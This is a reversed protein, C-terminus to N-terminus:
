NRGWMASAIINQQKKNQTAHIIKQKVLLTEKLKDSIRQEAEDMSVLRSAFKALQSERITQEFISDFIQIEFFALVETLSPEFLYSKNPTLKQKKIDEVSNIDFVDPYQNVVNKFKPYYIRIKEYQVIHKLIETLSEVEIKSDAVDFYTFPKNINSEKIMRLAYKGMVTIEVDKSITEEFFKNFTDQMVKGYLRGESGLLVHVTRGNHSLFTLKNKSKTSKKVEKAYTKLVEQFILNIDDLYLRSGLVKDRIKKMRNASISAYAKSMQKLAKMEDIELNVQKKTIM